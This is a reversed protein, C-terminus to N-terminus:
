KRNKLYFDLMYVIQNSVHRGEDKSLERLKESDTKSMSITIRDFLENKSKKHVMTDKDM